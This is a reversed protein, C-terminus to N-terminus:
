RVGGLQARDANGIRPGGIDATHGAVTGQDFGAEGVSRSRAIKVDGYQDHFAKKVLAARDALVLAASTGTHDQDYTAAARQEAREVRRAVTHAFGTLWDRRFSQIVEGYPVRAKLMDRTAQVLLSTYLADVREIDSEYGILAVAAITRGVQYQVSQCRLARGLWALLQSKEHTYPRDIGFRRTTVKDTRPGAADLMATTVGYEAMLEVAKAMCAEAEAPPTSPHEARDLLKRIRALKDTAETM